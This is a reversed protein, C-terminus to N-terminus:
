LLDITEQLRMGVDNKVGAQFLRTLMYVPPMVGDKEFAGTLVAVMENGEIVELVSFVETQSFITSCDPAYFFSCFLIIILLMLYTSCIDFVWSLRRIGALSLVNKAHPNCIPITYHTPPFLTSLTTSSAPYSSDSYSPNSPIAGGPIKQRGTFCFFHSAGPTHANPSLISSPSCTNIQFNLSTYCWLFTMLLLLPLPALLITPPPPNLHFSIGFYQSLITM